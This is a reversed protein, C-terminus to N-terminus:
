TRTSHFINVNYVFDIVYSITFLLKKNIM